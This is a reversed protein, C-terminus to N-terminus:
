RAVEERKKKIDTMNERGQERKRGIKRGGVREMNGDRERKRRTERRQLSSSLVQRTQTVAVQDKVRGTRARM